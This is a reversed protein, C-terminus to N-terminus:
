SRDAPCRECRLWPALSPAFSAGETETVRSRRPQPQRSGFGRDDGARPRAVTPAGGFVCSELAIESEQLRLEVGARFEAGICSVTAVRGELRVRGHFTASELNLRHLDVNKIDQPGAVEASLLVVNAKTHPFYLRSSEGFRAATLYLTAVTANLDVLGSFTARRFGLSEAESKPSFAVGASFMAGDFGVDALQQGDAKSDKHAWARGNVRENWYGVPKQVRYFQTDTFSAYGGFSAGTFRPEGGEFVADSFIARGFFTTRVFLEGLPATADPKHPDPQFIAGRFFADGEFTADRFIDNGQCILWPENEMRAHVLFQWADEAFTAGGFDVRLLKMGVADRPANEVIEGLLEASVRVGRVDLRAGQGFPEMAAQRSAADLHALCRDSPGLAAGGCGDGCLRMLRRADYPPGEAIVPARHLRPRQTASSHPKHRMM